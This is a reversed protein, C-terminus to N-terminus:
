RDMAPEGKGGLWSTLFPGTWTSLLSSMRASTVREIEAPVVAPIYSGDLAGICAEFYPFFKGSERIREPVVTGSPKIFLKDKLRMLSERVAKICASITAASHQWREAIHRVSHGVLAQLFIMLKDGCCVMQTEKLLGETKLLHLLRLFCPKDMRAVGQFRRVNETEMLEKYYLAGIVISTHQPVPDEHFFLNFNALIVKVLEDRSLM